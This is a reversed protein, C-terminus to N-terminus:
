LRITHDCHKAVEPDHTIVIITYHQSLKKLLTLVSQTTKTDLASTPEDLIFIQKVPQKCQNALFTRLIIVMQRQGGSLESGAIGVPRDLYEHDRPHRQLIHGVGQKAIWQYVQKRTINGECAYRINDLISGEFLKVQQPIYGVARQRAKPQNTLDTLNIFVKGGAPQTLGIIIKALTSKGCGSSGQIATIKNRMFMLTKDTLVPNDSGPYRYSMESVVVSYPVLQEETLIESHIPPSREAEEQSEALSPLNTVDELYVNSKDLANCTETYIVKFHYIKELFFLMIVFVGTYKALTVGQQYRGKILYHLRVVIAVVFCVTATDLVRYLRSNSQECNKFHRLHRQNSRSFNKGEYKFSDNVLIYLMNDLTNLIEQNHIARYGAEAKAQQQPIKVRKILYLLYVTIFGLGILGLGTDLVWLFIVMAVLCVIQPIMYGFIRQVIQEVLYPVNSMHNIIKGLPLERNSNQYMEMTDVMISHKTDIYVQDMIQTSVRHRIYNMFRLLTFIAIFGIIMKSFRTGNYNKLNVSTIKSIVMYPLVVVEIPLAILVLLCYFILKGKINQFKFKSFVAQLKQWNSQPSKTNLM